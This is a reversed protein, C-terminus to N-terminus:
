GSPSSTPRPMRIVDAFMGATTRVNLRLHAGRRRRRRRTFYVADVRGHLARFLPRVGDLILADKDRDYYHVHITHWDM